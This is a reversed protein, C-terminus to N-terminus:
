SKAGNEAIYSLLEPTPHFWEGHSRAGAFRQHLRAELAQGGDRIVALLELRVPSSTRLTALRQNVDQAIGIKILGVHDARIFYVSQSRAARGQRPLQATLRGIKEADSRIRDTLERAEDESLEVTAIDNM